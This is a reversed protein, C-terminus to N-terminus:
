GPSPPRDHLRGDAQLFGEVAMGLDVRDGAYGNPVCTGASDDVGARRVSLEVPESALVPAPVEPLPACRAQSQPM